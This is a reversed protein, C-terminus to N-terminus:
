QGSSAVKVGIQRATEKAQQEHQKLTDLTKSAWDKLQQNHGSKAYQEFMSVANEHDKVMERMYTKDFDAGSLKELRSQMAKQDKSMDSPVKIKEQEALSKLEDNAKQHDDVMRQAFQKVDASQAREAAVKGIAVEAMGDQTAKTVFTSDSLAGKTSAGHKAHHAATAPTQWAVAGALLAIPILGYRIRM